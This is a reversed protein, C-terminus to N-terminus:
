ASVKRQRLRRFAVFALAAGILLGYTSPEPVASTFTVIANDNITFKGLYTGEQGFVPDVRYLDLVSTATGLRGGSTSFTASDINVGLNFDTSNKTLQAWTNAQSATQLTGKTSNATAVGDTVYKGALANIDTTIGAQTSPSKGVIPLTQTNINLANRGRTAYITEVSSPTGDFTTGIAGWSVTSSTNWSATFASILDGSIDGGLAVTFSSGNLQSFQSINGLNVLYDSTASTGRFGLFLDGATYTLAARASSTLSAAVGAALIAVVTLHKLKM